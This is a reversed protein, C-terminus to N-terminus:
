IFHCSYMNDRDCGPYQVQKERQRYQRGAKCGPLVFAGCSGQVGGARKRSNSKACATGEVPVSREGERQVVLKYEVQLVSSPHEEETVVKSVGRSSVTYKM